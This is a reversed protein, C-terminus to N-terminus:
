GPLLAVASTPPPRITCKKSPFICCNLPSTSPPCQVSRPRCSRWQCGGKRKTTQAKKFVFLLCTVTAVSPTNTYLFRRQVCSLSSICTDRGTHAALSTVCRNKTCEPYKELRNNDMKQTTAELRWETCQTTNEDLMGACVHRRRQRKEGAGCVREMSTQHSGSLVKM